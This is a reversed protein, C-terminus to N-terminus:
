TLIAAPIAPHEDGWDDFSTQSMRIDRDCLRAWRLSAVKIPSFFVSPRIWTANDHFSCNKEHFKFSNSEACSTYGHFHHGVIGLSSAGHQVWNGWHKAAARIIADSRTNNSRYFFGHFKWLKPSRRSVIAFCAWQNLPVVNGNKLSWWRCDCQIGVNRITLDTLDWM